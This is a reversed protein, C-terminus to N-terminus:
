IRDVPNLSHFLVNMRLIDRSPDATDAAGLKRRPRRDSIDTQLDARFAMRVVRTALLHDVGGTADVAEILAKLARLIDLGGLRLALGAHIRGHPATLTVYCCQDVLEGVTNLESRFLKRLERSSRPPSRPPRPPRPRTRRLSGCRRLRLGSRSMSYM